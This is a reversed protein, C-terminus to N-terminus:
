YKILMSIMQILYKKTKTFNMKKQKKEDFNINKKNM